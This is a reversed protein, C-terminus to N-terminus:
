LRISIPPRKEQHSSFEEHMDDRSRLPQARSNSPPPPHPLAGEDSNHGHSPKFAPERSKRLNRTDTNIQNASTQTEKPEKPPTSEELIQGESIEAMSENSGHIVGLIKGNAANSPMNGEIISKIVRTLSGLSPLQSKVSPNSHTPLRHHSSPIPEANKKAQKIKADTTSNSDAYQSILENINREQEYKTAATIPALPSNRVSSSSDAADQKAVPV